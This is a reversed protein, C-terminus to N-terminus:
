DGIGMIIRRGAAVCHLYRWQRRQWFAVAESDTARSLIQTSMRFGAECINVASRSWWVFTGDEQFSKIRANWIPACRRSDKLPYIYQQGGRIIQRRANLNKWVVTLNAM